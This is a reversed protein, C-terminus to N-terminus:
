GAIFSIQPGIQRYFRAPVQCCHALKIYGFCPNSNHKCRGGISTCFNDRHEVFWADVEDGVTLLNEKDFFIDFVCLKM